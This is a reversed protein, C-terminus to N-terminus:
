RVGPFHPTASNAWRAVTDEDDPWEGLLTELRTTREKLTEGAMKSRKSAM